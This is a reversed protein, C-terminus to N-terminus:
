LCCMVVAVVKDHAKIRARSCLMPHLLRHTQIWPQNSITNHLHPGLKLIRHANSPLRPKPPNLAPTSILPSIIHSLFLHKANSM